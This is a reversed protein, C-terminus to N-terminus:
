GDCLQDELIGALEDCDWCDCGEPCESTVVSLHRVREADAVPVVNIDEM